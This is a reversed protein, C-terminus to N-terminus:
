YILKGFPNALQSLGQTFHLADSSVTLCVCGEETVPSHTDSSDLCIFDGVHYEGLEDSFSGQLLLTMEFGKHTHAPVSGGPEINLLSAKFNNDELALRARSVKGIGNWKGLIISNLARPLLIQKGDIDIETPTSIAEVSHNAETATISNLMDLEGSDLFLSETLEADLLDDLYSSVALDSASNGESGELEFIDNAAQETLASVQERCQECMELHAAVVVSVTAPLDGNVYDQLVATDPHYNIM